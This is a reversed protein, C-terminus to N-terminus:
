LLAHTYLSKYKYKSLINPNAPSNKYTHKYPHNM